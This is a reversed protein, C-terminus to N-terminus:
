WPLRLLMASISAATARSARRRRFHDGDVGVHQDAEEDRVIGRLGPTGALQDLPVVHHNGGRHQELRLPHKAGSVADVPRLDFGGKPAEEPQRANRRIRGGGHRQREVRVAGAQIERVRQM